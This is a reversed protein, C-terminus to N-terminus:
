RSEGLEIMAVKVKEHPVEEESAVVLGLQEYFKRAQELSKVAIGLHDIMHMRNEGGVCRPPSTLRHGRRPKVSNQMKGLSVGQALSKRGKPGQKQDASIPM